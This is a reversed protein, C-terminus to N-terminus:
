TYLDRTNLSASLHAPALGAPKSTKSLIQLLSLMTGIAQFLERPELLSFVEGLFAM